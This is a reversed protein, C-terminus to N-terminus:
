HVRHIAYFQGIFHAHILTVTQLSPRLCCLLISNNKAFLLKSRDTILSNSKALLQTLLSTLHAECGHPVYLLSKSIILSLEVQATHLRGLQINRYRLSIYRRVEAKAFALNRIKPNRRHRIFTGLYKTGDSFGATNDTISVDFYM